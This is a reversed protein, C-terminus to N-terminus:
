EKPFENPVNGYLTAAQHIGGLAGGDASSDESQVSLVHKQPDKEDKAAYHHPHNSFVVMSYPDREGNEHRVRELQRVMRPSLAGGVGHALFHDALGFPM